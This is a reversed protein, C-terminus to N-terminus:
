SDKSEEYSLCRGKERVTRAHSRNCKSSRSRRTSCFKVVNVIRVENLDECGGTMFFVFEPGSVISDIGSFGCAEGRMHYEALIMQGVGVGCHWSLLYEESFVM